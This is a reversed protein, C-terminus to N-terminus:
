AGEQPKDTSMNRDHNTYDIAEELMDRREIITYIGSMELIRDTYTSCGFIVINGKRERVKNYRGMIMGVGSSDMFTIGSLNFILNKSQFAEMTKDIEDRVVAATHHDLEGTLHVILTDDSLDFTIM